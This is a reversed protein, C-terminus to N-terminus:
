EVVVVHFVECSVSGVRSKLPGDLGDWTYCRPSVKTCTAYFSNYLRDPGVFDFVDGVTLNRFQFM